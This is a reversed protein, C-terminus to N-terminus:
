QAIYKILDAFLPNGQDLVLTADEGIATKLAQALFAPDSRTADSAIFEVDDCYRVCEAVTERIACLMAILAPLITQATQLGQKAGHLFADYLPVRRWAGSLLCVLLFIPLLATM